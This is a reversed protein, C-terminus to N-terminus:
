RKAFMERSFNGSRFTVTVNQIITSAYVETLLEIETCVNLKM